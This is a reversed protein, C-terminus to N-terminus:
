SLLTDSCSFRNSWDLSLSAVFIQSFGSILKVFTGNPSVSVNVLGLLRECLVLVKVFAFVFRTARLAGTPGRGGALRLM